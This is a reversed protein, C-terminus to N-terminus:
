WSITSEMFYLLTGDPDRFNAYKGAKDEFTQYAIDLQQLHEKVNDLSDIGFGISFADSNANSNEKAPHLGIVVGPAAVQAYHDNWRQKLQLGLNKYFEISKDM